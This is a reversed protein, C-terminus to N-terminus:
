VFYKINVYGGFKQKMVGLEVNKLSDNGRVAFMTDENLKYQAGVEFERSLVNVSGGICLKNGMLSDMSASVDFDMEPSTITTFNSNVSLELSYKKEDNYGIDVTMEPECISASFSINRHKLKNSQVCISPNDTDSSTFKVSSILSNSDFDHSTSLSTSVTNSGDEKNTSMTRSVSFRTPGVQSSIDLSHTKDNKNFFWGFISQGVDGFTTAM